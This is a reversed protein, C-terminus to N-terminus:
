GCLVWRGDLSGLVCSVVVWWVVLVVVWWFGGSVVLWRSRSSVLGEFDWRGGRECVRLFKIM